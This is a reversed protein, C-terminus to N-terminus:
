SRQRWRGRGGRVARWRGGCGCWESAAVHARPWRTVQGATADYREVSSLAAAMTGAWRTCCVMWWRWGLGEAQQGHLAAATVQEGGRRYWEVSSLRSYNDDSGGVRVARWGGRAVGVGGGRKSGMSAVATWKNAARTPAGRQESRQWRRAWAYLGAMRGCGGGAQQGHLAAKTWKNAAAHLHAAGRQELRQTAMSSGGRAAGRRGAEKM